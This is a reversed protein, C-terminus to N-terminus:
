PPPYLPFRPESGVPIGERVKFVIEGTPKDLSIKMFIGIVWILREELKASSDIKPLRERHEAFWTEPNDRPAM